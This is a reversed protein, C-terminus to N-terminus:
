DKISTKQVESSWITFLTGTNARRLRFIKIKQAKMQSSVIQCLLLICYFAIFVIIETPRDISFETPLKSCFISGKGLKEQDPNLHPYARFNQLYDVM